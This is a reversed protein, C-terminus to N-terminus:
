IEIFNKDRERKLVNKECKKKQPIPGRAGNITENQVCTQGMHGCGNMKREREGERERV